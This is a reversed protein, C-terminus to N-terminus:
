QSVQLSFSPLFAPTVLLSLPSTEPKMKIENKQAKKVKVNTYNQRNNGVCMEAM